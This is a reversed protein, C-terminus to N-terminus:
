LTDSHKGLLRKEMEDATGGAIDIIERLTRAETDADVQVRFIAAHKGHKHEISWQGLILKANEELLHQMMNAPIEHDSVYGISMVERVEMHRITNTRSIVFVKQKRRNDALYTMIVRYDGDGDIEYSIGAADLMRKVRPDPSPGRAAGPNQAWATVVTMALLLVVSLGQKM